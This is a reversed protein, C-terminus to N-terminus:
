GKKCANNFVKIKGFLPHILCGNMDVVTKCNVCYKMGWYIGIWKHKDRRCIYKKHLLFTEKAEILKSPISVGFYFRYYSQYWLQTGHLVERFSKNVQALAIITQDSIYEQLQLLLDAPLESM